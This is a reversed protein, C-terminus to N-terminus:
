ADRLAESSVTGRYEVIDLVGLEAALRELRPWNEPRPGIMVYRVKPNRQRIAPLARIVVDHGKNEDLRAVTLLIAADGPAPAKREQQFWDEGVGGPLVAVKSLDAGIEGLRARTYRSLAFVIDSRELVRTRLRGLRAKLKQKWGDQYPLIEAGYASVVQLPGDPGGLYSVLVAAPFWVASWVVDPKFDRLERRLTTLISLERHCLRDAVRVTSFPQVADFSEAAVADDATAIARVEHGLQHLHVLTSWSLVAIGGQKPPYDSCVALIRM